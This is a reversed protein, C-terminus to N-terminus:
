QIRPFLPPLKKIKLGEKLGGWKVEDDFNRGKIGGSIGLSAWIKEASAPMFPYLYVALIRLGEALTYLVNSLRAEDKNKALVWPASKDVYANLERTVVWLQTLAHHFELGALFDDYSGPLTKFWGQIRQEMGSDQSNIAPPIVGGRYKEIMSISRSLLNGLDNALDSNIRAELAKISFDGDLGFPVERLLFYRFQDVGYKEIIALPDIVNGKSKSMKQGDVTWWGHAFVKDPLRIGASLLFAPWYIAHFRLIDKGIIH